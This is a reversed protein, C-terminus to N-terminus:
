ITNYTKKTANLDEEKVLKCKVIFKMIERLEQKSYAPGKYWKSEKVQDITARKTPETCVLSEFLEKFDEDFGNKGQIKCQAEWFANKKSILLEYLDYGGMLSSECYPLKGTLMTFLPVGCSYMDAAKPNNCDRLLLEPARFNKTGKGIIMLDENTYASDFDSIKLDYDLGLLVNSLKLDMHAVGKSHLYELGEILQQFYARVLKENGAFKGKHVLEAFSGYPAFDMVLHSAHQNEELFYAKEPNSDIM